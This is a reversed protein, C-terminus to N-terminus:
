PFFHPESPYERAWTLNLLKLRKENTVEKGYGFALPMLKESILKIVWVDNRNKAKHIEVAIPDFRKLLNKISMKKIKIEKTVRSKFIFDLDRTHRGSAYYLGHELPTIINQKLMVKKDPQMEWALMAYEAEEFSKDIATSTNDHAKAGSVIYPYHQSIFFCVIVPIADITFDFFIVDRGLKKWFAVRQSINLPLLSNSLKDVKKKTYWVVSIADREILEYLANKLAEEKSFHAAIGNSSSKRDPLYGLENKSIPYFISETPIFEKKNSIVRYGKTMPIKSKKDIRVEGSHYREMAEVLSKLIAEEKSYGVGFGRGKRPKGTTNGKKAEYHTVACYKPFPHGHYSLREINYNTIINNKTTYEEILGHIQSFLSRFSPDTIIQEHGSM